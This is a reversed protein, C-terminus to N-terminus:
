SKAALSSSSIIFASFSTVNNASRLSASLM